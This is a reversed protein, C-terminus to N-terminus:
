GTGVALPQRLPAATPPAAPWTPPDRRAPRHSPPNHPRADGPFLVPCSCPPEVPPQSRQAWPPTLCRPGPPAPFYRRADLRGPQPSSWGGEPNTRRIWDVAGTRSRSRSPRPSARAATRPVPSTPPEIRQHPRPEAACRVDIQLTQTRLEVPNDVSVTSLHDVSKRTAFRLRGVEVAGLPRRDGGGPWSALLGDGATARDTGQDLRDLCPFFARVLRHANASERRM